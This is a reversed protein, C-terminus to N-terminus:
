PRAAAGADEIDAYTSEGFYLLYFRMTPTPFTASIPITLPPGVGDEACAQVWVM